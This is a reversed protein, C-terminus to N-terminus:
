KGQQKITWLRYVKSRQASVSDVALGLPKGTGRAGAIRERMPVLDRSVM